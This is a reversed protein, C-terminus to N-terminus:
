SAAREQSGLFDERAELAIDPQDAFVGDLGTAFFKELERFLDGYAAPDLGSRYELPLFVNEARFTYAHVVLGAAHADDVLTTPEGLSGDPNRPIVLGKDPGIGRAYTAIDALGAPTALEGYTRPTRGPRTLDYPVASRGGFLQVLAVDVETSLERLNTTEFSQVFVPAKRRDLGYRRLVSM